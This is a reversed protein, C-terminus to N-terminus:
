GEFMADLEDSSYFDGTEGPCFNNISLPNQGTAGSTKKSPASIFEKFSLLKRNSAKEQRTNSYSTKRGVWKCFRLKPNRM